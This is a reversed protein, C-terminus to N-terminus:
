DFTLSLKGKFADPEASMSTIIDGLPETFLAGGLAGELGGGYQELLAGGLEQADTSAAIAGEAGEVPATEASSLRGARAGDNALVFVGDVVGYVVSDGDATALAYFDEGKKPKAYGVPEGAVSKAIDPLESGLKNLARKLAVPDKVAARVGFDGDLTFTMSVDDELQGLLDEEIDVGARQEITEKGANYDGFGSPDIAQGAAESFTLIQQPDRLGVGIEGANSLVAPSDSGSAIPLDEETLEEGDSGLRFDFNIADDEASATLGFTTLAKVWKVKLADAAEPDGELLAEVNFFTRM